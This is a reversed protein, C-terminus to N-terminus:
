LDKFVQICLSSSPFDQFFVATSVCVSFCFFALSQPINQLVIQIYHLATISLPINSRISLPFYTFTMIHGKFHSNLTLLVATNQILFYINPTVLKTAMLKPLFLFITFIRSNIVTLLVTIGITPQRKHRRSHMPDSIHFLSGMMGWSSWVYSTEWSAM